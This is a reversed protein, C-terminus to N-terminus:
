IHILSLPLLAYGLVLPTGLTFTNHAPAPAALFISFVTVGGGVFGLAFTAFRVLCAAILAIILSIVLLVLAVAVAAECPFQPITQRLLLLPLVHLGCEWVLLRYRGPVM